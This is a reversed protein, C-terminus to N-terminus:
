ARFAKEATLFSSEGKKSLSEALQNGEKELIEDLAGDLQELLDKADAHVALDAHVSPKKLEESDIDNAIM